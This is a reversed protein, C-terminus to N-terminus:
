FNAKFTANRFDYIDVFKPDSCSAGVKAIGNWRMTLSGTGQGNRVNFQTFKSESGMPTLAFNFANKTQSLVTCKGNFERDGTFKITVSGGQNFGQSNKISKWSFSLPLAYKIRMNAKLNSTKYTRTGDKVLFQYLANSSFKKTVSFKNSGTVPYSSWSSWPKGTEKYRFSVTKPAFCMNALSGTLKVSQGIITTAPLASAKISPSDPCNQWSVTLPASRGFKNTGIVEFSYTKGYAVGVFVRGCWGSDALQCLLEGSQKNFVRWITLDHTQNSVDLYLSIEEEAVKELRFEFPKEPAGYGSDAYRRASIGYGGWCRIDQRVDVACIHDSGSSLQVVENVIRPINLRAWADKGWCSISGGITIGCTHWGGASIQVFDYNFEEPKWDGYVRDYNGYCKLKNEITVGCGHADGVSIQRFQGELNWPDTNWGWCWMEASELLACTHFPAASIQTAESVSPPVGTQRYTNDGWCLVSMSETIGCAHKYGLALSTFKETKSYGNVIETEEGWCALTNDIRIACATSAGVSVSVSKGVSSPVNELDSSTSTCYVDYEALVACTGFMGSSLSGPGSALTGVYEGASSPATPSASSTLALCIVFLATGLRSRRNSQLESM